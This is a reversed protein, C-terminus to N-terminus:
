IEEVFEFEGFKEPVHFSPEQTLTPQWALYGRSPDKGVCRYLNGRWIDGAKPKKGLAIWPIKMTIAISNEEISATSTMGSSYEFDTIRKGAKFDIALDVFEGSPAVEFEFYKDPKSDDPAIFIECVDRDWLGITKKDLVPDTSITLPEGQTAHFRVCLALTTWALRALCHRQPPAIEGNWYHEIPVPVGAPWHDHNIPFDHDIFPIRVRSEV